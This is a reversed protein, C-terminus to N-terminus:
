CKRDRSTTEQLAAVIHEALTEAVEAKTMTPWSTIGAATVLHVTNTESGFTNTGSSVDNAIIWDCGKAMRKRCANDLLSETEAAFGIVLSPRQPGPRSLTALIDPNLTLSLMPPSAEAAKKLKHRNVDTVRWDAVAAACVVVEVPLADECAALMEHASEVRITRVGVPNPLATPGSVLTVWAGRRALAAAIAYGQRGSSRNTIYRVPDIAEHTPGSTILM